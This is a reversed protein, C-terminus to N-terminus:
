PMSTGPRQDGHRALALPDVVKRLTMHFLYTEGYIPTQEEQHWMYSILKSSLVFVVEIYFTAKEKHYFPLITKSRSFFL